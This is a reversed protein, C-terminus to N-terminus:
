EGGSSAKEDGAVDQAPTRFEATMGKLAHSEDNPGRAFCIFAYRQGPALDVAFTGTEGPLRTPVGAFPSLVARQSGRIQENIPPLDDPLTLLAPRHELVGENVFRFVVHGAPIRDDFGFEYEDMTVIVVPPPEPLPAEPAAVTNCGGTAILALAGCLILSSRSVRYLRTSGLMVSSLCGPKLGIM